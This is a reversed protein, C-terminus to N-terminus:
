DSENHISPDRLQTRLQSQHFMVTIVTFSNAPPNLYIESLQIKSSSGALGQLRVTLPTKTITHLWSQRCTSKAKRQKCLAPLPVTKLLDTSSFRLEIHRFHRSEVIVYSQFFYGSKKLQLGRWVLPFYLPSLPRIVPHVRLLRPISYPFRASSNTVFNGKTSPKRLSTAKSSSETPKNTSVRRLLRRSPTFRCRKKLNDESSSEDFTNSFRAQKLSLRWNSPSVM